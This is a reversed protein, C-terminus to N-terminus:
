EAKIGAAKIIRGWRDVENALYKEADPVSGGTLVVGQKLLDRALQPDALAKGIAANMKEVVDNPTKKPAFVM